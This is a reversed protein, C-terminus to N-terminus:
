SAQTEEREKATIRAKEVFGAAIIAAEYLLCLPIALSLQSLVDPPTFIAAVIFATVIAYRRFRRLDTVQIMGAHVMLVLALPLEFSFGFALILSMALSLYDGVRAQLQIPLGGPGAPTEFSLFFSWAAPFVAYYALSAGALFLVPTALLYPLFMKREHEYLGPAIFKWLQILIFPSTVFFAAWLAVSLYTFFAETLQTFIMAHNGGKAALIRALPEVLFGYIPKAFFYCVVFAAALVAVCWVLRNRLEILHSLLPTENM